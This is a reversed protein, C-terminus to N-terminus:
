NKSIISELLKILESTRLKAGDSNLHYDTDFFYKDDFLFDSPKGIIAIDNQKFYYLLFNFYERYDKTYYKDHNLTNPFSIYFNIGNLKCWKSFKKIDKLALTEKFENSISFAKYNNKNVWKYNKRTYDGNENLYISPYAEKKFKGNFIRKIKKLIENISISFIIKLKNVFNISNIFYKRDYSLIFDRKVSKFERNSYLLNPYEFPAIVIDGKKLFNKTRYLIYDTQLSAHLGFNVTPIKFFEQIMTSNIGFLVNSGGVLVIKNKDISKAFREKKIIAKYLWYDTKPEYFYYIFISSCLLFLFNYIIFQKVITKLKM